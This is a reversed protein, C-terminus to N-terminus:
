IGTKSNCDYVNGYIGIVIGWSSKRLIYKHKILCIGGGSKKM